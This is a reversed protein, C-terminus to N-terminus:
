VSVCTRDAIYSEPDSLYARRERLFRSIACTYVRASEPTLKKEMEHRLHSRMTFLRGTFREEPPLIVAAHKLAACIRYVLPMPLISRKGMELTWMIAQQLTEQYM